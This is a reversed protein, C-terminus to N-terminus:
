RAEFNDKVKLLSCCSYASAHRCPNPIHRFFRPERVLAADNSGLKAPIQSRPYLGRSCLCFEPRYLNKDLSLAPSRSRLCYWLGSEGLIQPPNTFRQERSSLRVLTGVIGGLAMQCFHM